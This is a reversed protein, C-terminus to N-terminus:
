AAGHVKRMRADIEARFKADEFYRLKNTGPIKEQKAKEIAVLESEVGGQPVDEGPKPLARQSTKAIIKEFMGLVSAAQAGSIASRFVDFDAKDLNAQVWNAANTIREDAKEGLEAKVAAMDVQNQAEYTALMGLLESFGAQSLQNEKAWKTFDGLLPADEVLTVGVGDPLKFDYKGDKPAGTFSGFRKELEGYAEAQAAVNKYKDHKFWAPREGQGLVGEALVWANPSNPDVPAAPTASAAPTAAAPTAAPAAPAAPILSTDPAPAAPAAAAPAAPAAAPTTM